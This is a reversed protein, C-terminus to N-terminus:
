GSSGTVGASQATGLSPARYNTALFVCTDQGEEVLRFRAALTRRVDPLFGRVDHDSTVLWVRPYADVARVFQQNDLIVPVGYQTDVARGNKEFIYLMVARSYYAMWYTPPRGIGVGVLDGPAAAIVADGPRLRARVYADATTYDYQYHALNAGLFRASFPGLDALGNYTGLVVACVALVGATGATAVTPLRRLQLYGAARRGWSLIDDVACGALLFVFPITEFVYRSNKHPLLLSITATPIIWFAAVYLRAADRRRVGVAVALVALWSVITIGAGESTFFVNKIFFFPQPSWAILPGGSPDVGFSPPHSLVAVSLQALIVCAALGGFLWWRWDSLWSLGRRAFLAIPIIPLVSFSVEHALYMCVTAAMAFAIRRTSPRALARALLLAVVVTFFQVMQYMRVDRAFQFEIPAVALVTTTLVQLYRRRRLLMPALFFGFLLVTAAFLVVSLLRYSTMSGHTVAGLVAISASYLESKWYQFGSPWIPLIHRRVAEAAIVSDLEDQWPYDWNVHYSLVATMILCASGIGIQHCHASFFNALAARQHSLPTGPAPAAKHLQGPAAGPPVAPRRRSPGVPITPAWHEFLAATTALVLGAGLVSLTVALLRPTDPFPPTTSSLHKTQDFVCVLTAAPLAGLACYATARRWPGGALVSLAFAAAIFCLAWASDLLHRALQRGGLVVSQTPVIELPVGFAAAPTGAVLAERGTPLTWGQGTGFILNQHRTTVRGDLYVLPTSDPGSAVSVVLRARGAPLTSCVDFVSLAMPRPLHKLPQGLANPVGIITLGGAGEAVVRGGASVTFPGTAAVRIWGQRCGSPVTFLTSVTLLGTTSATTIVEHQAPMSYADRPFTVVGSGGRASAPAANVWGTTTATPLSYTGSEPFAQDTLAVNTTSRWASPSTGLVVTRTGWRLEVRAQFAPTNGALSVVELGLGNAGPVLAPLLDVTEVADHIPVRPPLVPPNLLRYGNLYPTAGQDAQFWLTAAEPLTPIPVALRFFARAGPEPSRVWPQGVLPSAYPGRPTRFQTGAWFGGVLWASTVITLAAALAVGRARLPYGETHADVQGPPEPAIPQILQDLTSIPM